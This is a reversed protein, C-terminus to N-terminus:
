KGTAEDLGKRLMQGWRRLARDADARNTVGNTWELRGSDMGRRRDVVRVLIEGTTGDFLELLLTMEGTSTTYSRSMGASMTDPANIDLNIISPHLVLVAEGSDFSAALPYAPPTQLAEKFYKDCEEGLSDKISDVDEQTVRSSLNVRNSNQDRLWNKRFAVECNALGYEQYDELSAGPRVYVEAFATDPKLVLGDHTEQPATSACAGLGMVVLLSVVINMAKM